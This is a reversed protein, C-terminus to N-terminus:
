WTSSPLETAVPRARVPHRLGQYISLYRRTVQAWDLTAEAKARNRRAVERRLRPDDALRRIAEALAAPEGPPVLLGNVGHEVLEPIGGATSGVVPLGSALAEAFVNGVAGATPALTFLDAERYSRAVAAREVTGDLHVEGSLGLGAILESLWRDDSATVIELEFRDRELLAFAQLLNALGHGEPMRAVALCRFRDARERRKVPPHFRHLDVGDHVVAYRLRPSTELAFRGLSESLVVVRDARRWIWRTFPKLLRHVWQISHDNGAYGPVDSGRLSVVVPTGRLGLCPLLAATPLSFFFHVVDYREARLLRRVVPLAAALYSAADAMGAHDAGTRRARVRHVALMGEEAAEGDWLLMSDSVTQEGATVVDVSAGRAALGRALAETAVGAGGGLPPYEYNLMLVRM